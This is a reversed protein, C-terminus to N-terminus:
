SRGFKGKEGQSLLPNPHHSAFARPFASCRKYKGFVRCELAPHGGGRNQRLLLTWKRQVTTAVYQANVM